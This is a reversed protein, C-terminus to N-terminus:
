AGSAPNDGGEAPAAPEEPQPAPVDASFDHDLPAVPQEPSPEPLLSQANWTTLIDRFEKIYAFNECGITILYLVTEELSFGKDRLHNVLAALNKLPAKTIADLENDTVGDQNPIDAFDLATALFDRKKSLFWSRLLEEVPLNEKAKAMASLVVPIDLETKSKLSVFKTSKRPQYRGIYVRRQKHNLSAFIESAITGPVKDVIQYLEM